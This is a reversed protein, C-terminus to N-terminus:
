SGSYTAERDRARSHERQGMGLRLRGTVRGESERVLASDVFKMGCLGVDASVDNGAKRKPFSAVLPRDHEDVGLKSSLKVSDGTSSGLGEVVWCIGAALTRLGDNPPM